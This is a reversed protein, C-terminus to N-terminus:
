VEGGQGADVHGVPKLTLGVHGLQDPLKTSQGDALDCLYALGNRRGLPHWPALGYAVVSRVDQSTPYAGDTACTGWPSGWSKSLLDVQHTRSNKGAGWIRLRICRHCDSAGAAHRIEAKWAFERGRANLRRLRTTTM